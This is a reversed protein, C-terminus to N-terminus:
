LLLCKKDECFYQHKKSVSLNVAVRSYHYYDSCFVGSGMKKLSLPLKVKKIWTNGMFACDDIEELGEPLIVNKIDNKALAYKGIKKLGLPFNIDGTEQGNLAYDGIISVDDRLPTKYDRCFLLMTTGDDLRRYLMNDDEIFLSKSEHKVGIFFKSIVNEGDKLRLSIFADNIVEISDPFVVTIKKPHDANISNKEIERLGDNFIITGNFNPIDLAYSKVIRVCGPLVITDPFNNKATIEFLATKDESLRYKLGDFEM